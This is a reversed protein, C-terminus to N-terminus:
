ASRSWSSGPWRRFLVRDLVQGVLIAPAAMLNYAHAYLGLAIPGLSRGVVLNDGQGALYNGIRALTFGGGFYLLERMALTELLPRKAHPQGFWLAAMRASQQSLYAGVLAWVGYGMLTMVPAVVVYGLAFASADVLALWRFRFNRQALSQAVVTLGQLPFGFAIVRVVPELDPMQFFGAIAPAALWVLCGAAVSLVLSLTFGVRIHRPELDPRQVIAPGVGLESFIACFGAVVMAAAFLGFQGPQLLRALLILAVIQLLAQAGMAMSTWVLGVIAQETLKRPAASM